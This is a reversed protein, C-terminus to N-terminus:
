SNIYAAFNDSLLTSGTTNLHLGKPKLHIESRINNHRMFPVKLQSCKIALLDNVKEAKGKLQDRRSLISSVLIQNKDTKMSTALKVIDTAIQEESTDGRLSNTGVHLIAIDPNFEMVPVAHHKMAHITAGNFNHRYVKDRKNKLKKRMEFPDVDKLMSDGLIAITRQNSSKKRTVNQYGSCGDDVNAESRKTENETDRSQVNKNSYSRQTENIVNNVNMRNEVVNIGSTVDVELDEKKKFM